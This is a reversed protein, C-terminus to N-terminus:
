DQAHGNTVIRAARPDDGSRAQDPYAYDLAHVGPQDLDRDLDHSPAYQPISRTEAFRSGSKGFSAGRVIPPPVPLPGPSGARSLSANSPPHIVIDPVRTRRTRNKGRSRSRRRGHSYPDEERRRGPPSFDADSRAGDGHGYDIETLDEPHSIHSAAVPPPIVSPPYPGGGRPLSGRFSQDDALAHIQPAPLLVPDVYDLNETWGQELPEDRRPKKRTKTSRKFLRAPLGFPM